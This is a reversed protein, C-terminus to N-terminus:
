VSSSSGLRGLLEAEIADAIPQPLGDWVGLTVYDCCNLRYGRCLRYLAYLPIPLRGRLVEESVGMLAAAEAEDVNLRRLLARLRHAATQNFDDEHLIPIRVQDM